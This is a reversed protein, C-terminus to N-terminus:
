PGTYDRQFQAFDTLDVRQDRNRDSYDFREPCYCDIKVNIEVTCDDKIIDCRHITVDEHCLNDTSHISVDWNNYLHGVIKVDGPLAMLMVLMAANKLM